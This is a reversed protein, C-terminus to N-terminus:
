KEKFHYCNRAVAISVDKIIAEKNLTFVETSLITILTLWIKCVKNHICDYCDNNKPM